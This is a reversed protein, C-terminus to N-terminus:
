LFSGRVLHRLRHRKLWLRLLVSHSSWRYVTGLTVRRGREHVYDRLTRGDPLHIEIQDDPTVFRSSPM